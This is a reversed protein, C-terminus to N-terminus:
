HLKSLLWDRLIRAKPGIGRGKPFIVKIRFEKEIDPLVCLFQSGMALFVESYANKKFIEELFKKNYGRIKHIKAENVTYSHWDDGHPPNYPLLVDERMLKLDDGLILVDVNEDRYKRTVRYFIGDYREIAPLREKDKRRRYSPGLILLRKSVM